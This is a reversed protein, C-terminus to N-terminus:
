IIELIAILQNYDDGDPAREDRDMKAGYEVVAHVMAELKQKAVVFIERDIEGGCEIALNLAEVAHNLATQRTM